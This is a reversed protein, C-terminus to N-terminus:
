RCLLVLATILLAAVLLPGICWTGLAWLEFAAPKAEGRSGWAELVFFYSSVLWARAAAATLGLLYIGARPGSRM